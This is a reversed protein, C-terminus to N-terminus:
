WGRKVLNEETEICLTTVAREESCFGFWVHVIFIIYDSSGQYRSILVEGHVARIPIDYFLLFLLLLVM